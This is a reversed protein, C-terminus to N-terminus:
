SLNLYSRRRQENSGEVERSREPFFRLYVGPSDDLPLYRKKYDKEEKEYDRGGGGMFKQWQCWLKHPCTNKVLKKSERGLSHKFMLVYDILVDIGLSGVM